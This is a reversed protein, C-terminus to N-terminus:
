RRALAVEGERRVAQLGSVVRHLRPRSAILQVAGLGRVNRGPLFGLGVELELLHLVKRRMEGIRFPQDAHRARVILLPEQEVAGAAVRELADHLRGVVGVPELLDDYAHAAIIGTGRRQLRLSERLKVRSRSRPPLMSAM